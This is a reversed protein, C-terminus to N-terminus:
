YSPELSTTLYNSKTCVQSQLNKHKKVARVNCVKIPDGNIVEKKQAKTERWVYERM